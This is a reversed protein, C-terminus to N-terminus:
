EYCYGGDIQLCAGNIYRNTLAQYVLSAIEEPEAFRHAATKAEIRKRQAEPKNKQWPTNVFGPTVVNVTISRDAFHKVLQKALMHVGAKSIAYPISMSHPYIGMVSGILVISGGISIEKSLKQTLFFPMTLNVNMVNNWENLTLEQFYARNTTGANLILYDLHEGKDVICKAVYEVGCIDSLDAKIFEYANPHKAILKVDLDKAVDVDGAYNIYVKCGESLLKLVIARGIGKTGGTVLAVKRNM